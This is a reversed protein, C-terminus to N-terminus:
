CGQWLESTHSHQVRYRLEPHRGFNVEDPGNGLFIHFRKRGNLWMTEFLAMKINRWVAHKLTALLIGGATKEGIRPVLLPGSSAGTM